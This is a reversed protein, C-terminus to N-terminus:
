EGKGHKEEAGCGGCVATGVNMYECPHGNAQARCKWGLGAREVLDELGPLKSVRALKFLAETARVADKPLQAPEFGQVQCAVIEYSEVGAQAAFYLEVAEGDAAPPEQPLSTDFKRAESWWRRAIQGGEAVALDESNFASVTRGFKHEFVFVYIDM